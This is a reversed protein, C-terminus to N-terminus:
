LTGGAKNGLVKAAIQGYLHGVVFISAAGIAAGAIWGLIPISVLLGSVFGIALSVAFVILINSMNNTVIDKLESIRFLSGFDNKIAYQITIAPSLFLIAVFFLVTLCLLLIGGAGGILAFANDSSSLSAFGGLAVGGIILIILIPLTYLFEALFIFFGDKFLAGWDDWEPLGDWEGNMVQRIIKIMYGVLIFAPLLLFSAISLVAAIIIKKVWDADEPIYKIAKNIDM